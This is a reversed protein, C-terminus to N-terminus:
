CGECDHGIGHFQSHRVPAALQILRELRLSDAHAINHKAIFDDGSRAAIWDGVRMLERACREDDSLHKEAIQPERGTVHSDQSLSPAKDAEPFAQKKRANRQIIIQPIEPEDYGDRIVQEIFDQWTNTM